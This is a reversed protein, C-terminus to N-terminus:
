PGPTRPRRESQTGPGAQSSPEVASGPNPWAREVLDVLDAPIKAAYAQGTVSGTLAVRRVAILKAPTAGPMTKLLRSMRLGALESSRRTMEVAEALTVQGHRLM